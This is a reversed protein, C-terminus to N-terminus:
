IFVHLPWVLVSSAVATRKVAPAPLLSAPPLPAPASVGISLSIVEISFCGRVRGGACGRGAGIVTGIVTAWIGAWIAIREGIIGIVVCGKAAGRIARGGVVGIVAVVLRRRAEARRVKSPFVVGSEDFVSM